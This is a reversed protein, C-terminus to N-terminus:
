EPAAESVEELGDEGKGEGSVGSEGRGNKNEGLLLRFAMGFEPSSGGSNAPKPLGSARMERRGEGGRDNVM